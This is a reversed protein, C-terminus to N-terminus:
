GNPVDVSIDGQDSTIEVTARGGGGGTTYQCDFTRGEEVVVSTPCEFTTIPEVAIRDIAAKVQRELADQDLVRTPSVSIPGSSVEIAVLVACVAVVVSSLAMVTLAFSRQPKAPPPPPPPNQDTM